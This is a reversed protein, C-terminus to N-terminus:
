VTLFITTILRPILFRSKLKWLSKMRYYSRRPNKSRTNKTNSVIQPRLLLNSRQLIRRIVEEEEQYNRRSQLYKGTQEKRIICPSNKIWLLTNNQIRELKKIYPKAAESWISALYTTVPKLTGEYIKKESKLPIRSRRGIQRNIM